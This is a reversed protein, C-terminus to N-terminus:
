IDFKTCAEVIRDKISIVAEDITDFKQGKLQMLYGDVNVVASSYYKRSKKMYFISIEEIIEAKQVTVDIM